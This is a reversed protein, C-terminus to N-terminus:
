RVKVEKIEQIKEKLKKEIWEVYHQRELPSRLCGGQLYVSVVGEKLGIFNVEGGEQEIFPKIETELVERVKRELSSIKRYSSTGESLLKWLADYKSAAHWIIYGWAPSDQTARIQNAIYEPGFGPARLDFGQIYPVFRSEGLLKVGRKISGLIINYERERPNESWAYNSPFHSPYLMPHIVDLFPAMATLSQGEHQLTPIWLICGFVDATVRVGLKKLEKYANRLFGAITERKSRCRKIYPRFNGTASPFRIYDFQIEPVGRTAIDKAIEIVYQHPKELCPDVWYKGHGDKWIKRDLGKISYRGRDYWALISDQFVVIRGILLLGEDKCVQVLNELRIIPLVAGITKAFQVRTNYTVYGEATKFDVVV